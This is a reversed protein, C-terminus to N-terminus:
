EDKEDKQNMEKDEKSIWHWATLCGVLLGVILMSLTWSFTTPYKSDLWIGLLAGILTPIAITWGVIGMMGLGFWVSKKDNHQAQLKRRAKEEVKKSFLNQSNKDTSEM